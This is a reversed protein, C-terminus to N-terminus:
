DHNSGPGFVAMLHCENLVVFARDVWGEIFEVQSIDSQALNTYHQCRNRAFNTLLFFEAANAAAALTKSGIIGDPKVELLKQLTKRAFSGGQNIACDFLMYAICEPLKDCKNFLWYDQYYIDAAQAASLNAIDLHPYWRQSIGFKTLGGRDNPRENKGGEEDLVRTIASSATHPISLSINYQNTKNM